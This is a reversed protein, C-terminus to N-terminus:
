WDILWQQRRRPVCIQAHMLVGYIGSDLIGTRCVFWISPIRTSAARASSCYLYSDTRGHMECTAVDDDDVDDTLDGTCGGGDQSGFEAGRSFMFIFLLYIWVYVRGTPCIYVISCAATVCALHEAVVLRTM